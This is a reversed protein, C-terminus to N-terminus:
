KDTLEYSYEFHVVADINSIIGVGVQYDVFIQALDGDKKIKMSKGDFDRINNVILRKNILKRIERPQMGAIGDTGDLDELTGRITMDDLYIPGLKVALMLLSGFFLAMILMVLSSAGGQSNMNGRFYAIKKM